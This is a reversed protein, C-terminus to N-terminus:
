RYKSIRALQLPSEGALAPQRRSIHVCRRVGKRESLDDRVNARDGTRARPVPGGTEGGAFDGYIENQWRQWRELFLASSSLSSSIFLLYRVTGCSNTPFRWLSGINNIIERKWNGRDSIEHVTNNSERSPDIASRSLLRPPKGARPLNRSPLLRRRGPALKQPFYAGDNLIGSTTEASPTRDLQPTVFAQTICEPIFPGRPRPLTAPSGTDRSAVSSRSRANRLGDPLGIADARGQGDRGQAATATVTRSRSGVRSWGQRDANYSMGRGATRNQIWLRYGCNRNKKTAENSRAGLESDAPDPTAKEGGTSGPLRAARAPRPPSRSLSAPPMPGAAIAM